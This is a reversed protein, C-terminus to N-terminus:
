ERQFNGNQLVPSSTYKLPYGTIGYILTDDDIKHFNYVEFLTKPDTHGIDALLHNLEEPSTYSLYSHFKQALIRTPLGYAGMACVIQDTSQFNQMEKYMESVDKLSHPMFAIKPIEYPSEHMARLKEAFNKVPNKMDHYSRIIKTGYAMAADQLSSIHFDEEFDVYAFNKHSDESAFALARAFLMSRSAEGEAYRGGDVIRRITLICPINAMSPFDRIELREDDELMDVRLEVLDIYSRYKEILALDEKVTPATLCLCILPKPM